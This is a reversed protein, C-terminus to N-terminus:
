GVLAGVLLVAGSLASVTLIAPRARSGDVIGTLRSSVFFGLATPAALISTVRLDTSTVAGGTVLAILNIAIGITFAAGLNSRIEGGRDSRGYLLALPPGGIGTTTGTFGSALGAVVQNRNSLRIHAGAAILGVALLVMVGILVALTREAVRTIVWAGAVAGPIRGGVIWGLGTFDLSVRERWASAAAVPLAIMLQPIPTLGPDILTLLPVSLVGIGFGVTGQVVAGSFAIALTAALELPTLV